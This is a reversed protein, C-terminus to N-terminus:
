EESEDVISPECLAVFLTSVSLFFRYDDGPTPVTVAKELFENELFRSRILQNLRELRAVLLLGDQALMLPLQGTIQLLLTQVRQREFLYGSSRLYHFENKAVQNLVLRRLDLPLRNYLLTIQQDALFDDPPVTDPILQKRGSVISNSM